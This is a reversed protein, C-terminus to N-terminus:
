SDVQVTKVTSDISLIGMEIGDLMASDVENLLNPVSTMQNHVASGEIRMASANGNAPAVLKDKTPTM